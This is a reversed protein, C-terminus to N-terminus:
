VASISCSHSILTMKDTDSKSRKQMATYIIELAQLWQLDWWCAEYKGFKRATHM